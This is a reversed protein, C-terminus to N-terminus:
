SRHNEFMDSWTWVQRFKNLNLIIRISVIRLMDLSSIFVHRFVSFYSISYIARPNKKEIFLSKKSQKSCTSRDFVSLYTLALVHKIHAERKEATKYCLAAIDFNWLPFQREFCKLGACIRLELCCEKYSSTRLISQIFCM